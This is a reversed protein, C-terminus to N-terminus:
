YFIVASRQAPAAAYDLLFSLVEEAARAEKATASSYQQLDSGPYDQFSGLNRGVVQSSECTQVSAKHPLSSFHM